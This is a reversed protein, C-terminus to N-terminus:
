KISVLELRLNEKSDIKYIFYSSIIEHNARTLTMNKYTGIIDEDKKTPRYKKTLIYVIGNSSKIDLLYEEDEISFIEKKYSLDNGFLVIKREKTIGIVNKTENDFCFNILNPSLKSWNVKRTKYNLYFVHQSQNVILISDNILNTTYFRGKWYRDKTTYAKADYPTKITKFKKFGNKSIKLGNTHAGVITMNKYKDFSELRKHRSFPSSYKTWTDAYDNSFYMKGNSGGIGHM